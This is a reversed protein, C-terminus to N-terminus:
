PNPVVASIPPNFGRAGPSRYLLTYTVSSPRLDTSAGYNLGLNVCVDCGADHRGAAVSDYSRMTGRNFSLDQPFINGNPGNHMRLGGFRNAIAHGADDASYGIRRVWARTATNTDQGRPPAIGADLRFAASSLTTEGAIPTRQIHWRAHVGPALGYVVQCMDAPQSDDEDPVPRPRPVPIPRPTPVPEVDSRPMPRPVPEPNPVPSPTPSPEGPVPTPRPTPRPVPTPRPTPTPSPEPVPAPRPTPTPSPEPVPAPRPTPMPSPEPVPAPRPATRPMPGRAVPTAVPDVPAFRPNMDYAPGSPGVFIDGSGGSGAGRPAPAGGGPRGSPASGRAGRASGIPIVNDPLAYGNDNAPAPLGNDNAAPMSSWEPPLERPSGPAPGEPAPTPLAEPVDVRGGPPLADPTDVSPRSAPLEPTSVPALDPADPARAGRAGPPPAGRASARVGVHHGIGFTVVTLVATFGLQGWSFHDFSFGGMVYQTAVDMGGATVLAAGLQAAVQVGARAGTFLAGVGAGAAAGLGGGLAGTVAGVLIATGVGETWDRNSWLNGAVALLGSTVAGVAAGIAAGAAIAALPGLGALAGGGTAIIVAVVIIIVIIVLLVAVLRKWAPAEQAAAEDAKSTMEAELGGRQQGLSAELDTHAQTLATAAAALTQECGQSMGTVAQALAAAGASASQTVQQTFSTRQAAFNDTGALTSMGTTFGGGVEQAQANNGQTVASLAGLGENLAGLLRGETASAGNSASSDLGSLASDIRQQVQLLAGDLLTPDPAASAALQAQVQALSAQTSGVASAVAQQLAAAGAHALQEQMVQQMYGTDDILQLQAREQQDLQHLTARLGQGISGLLGDRTGEAQAITAASTAELAQVLGELQQDLTARTQTATAIVSCRDAKRGDRTAEMARKRAAEVLRDRYGKAVAGAADAQAAARRQSLNGDWFGNETCNRFSRYTAAFEAGKASCEGGITTGLGALDTRGTAYVENVSDLTTTELTDVETTAARHATRLTGIAAETQSTAQGIFSAAQRRVAGRAMAADARAQGRAQAIRASISGKESDMAAGIQAKASEAAIGLQDPIQRGAMATANDLRDAVSNFFGNARESASQRQSAEALSEGARASFGAGGRLGAVGGAAQALTARSGAYAAVAEGRQGEAAAIVGEIPSAEAMAPLAEVAAGGGGGGGGGRTAAGAGGGGPAGGHAAPDGSVVTAVEPAAGPEASVAGDTAAACDDPAELDEEGEDSTQEEVQTAPPNPAAEEPEPNPEERPRRFCAPTAGGGSGASAVGTAAAAGGGSGAGGASGGSAAGPTASAATAAGPAAAGADTAAAGRAGGREAGDAVDSGAAAGADAVAGGASTAGDAGAEEPVTDAGASSSDAEDEGGGDERAPAAGGGGGAGAELTADGDMLSEFRRTANVELDMQVASATEQEGTQASCKACTGGCDCKAQVGAHSEGSPGGLLDQASQGMAVREAVADAQQEYADGESGVGDKLHVGRRQQVVHTAEHAALRIDPDSKFGIRRGMTFARAGLQQSARAAPGGVQTRVGSIDHTGFSAQIRGAHPLPNDAGAVGQAAIGLPGAAGSGSGAPAALGAGQRQLAPGDEAVEENGAGGTDGCGSCKFQVAGLYRPVGGAESQTQVGQHDASPENPLKAKSRPKLAAVTM